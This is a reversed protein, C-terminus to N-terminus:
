AGKKNVSKLFLAEYDDVIKPWNYLTKIKEINNDLWSKYVDKAQASKIVSAVDTDDDFYFADEGLVGRNFANDNAAILTYSGMAEILSPNTGGVTHGHFYVHSYYRLNNVMAADYIGGLFRINSHHGYTEKLYTGYANETKGVVLLPDTNGSLIHGKIIMEVNNEPEMRAMLMYYKYPQLDYKALYSADPADFIDTGYAIFTSPKRYQEELYQQIGTSDAVMEDAHVAALKEAYKLFRRVYKNYKSRKWELGDMNVINKCKKPWRWYWISNSTYGLQLLIDFDRNRADKICNLDYLFQGFTGMKDEPDKCHIIHVGKWESEQYEHHASNYVWVEHGKEKLGLALYEACQEFGGYRNPIGRTGLIGIKLSTSM